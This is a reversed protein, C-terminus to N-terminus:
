AFGTIIGKKVTITKGVLLATTITTDIGASGDDSKFKGRIFGATSINQSGAGTTASVLDGGSLITWQTTSTATLFSINNQQVAINMGKRGTLQLPDGSISILTDGTITGNSTINTATVDYSGLDVNKVAGSYPVLNGIGVNIRVPM